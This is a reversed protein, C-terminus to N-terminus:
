SFFEEACGGESATTRLHETFYINKSIECFECSFVQTLTKKKIFNCALGAVKNFFFVEPPQKQEEIHKAKMKESYM